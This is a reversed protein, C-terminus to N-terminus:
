EENEKWLGLQTGGEAPPLARLLGGSLEDLVARRVWAKEDTPGYVIEPHHQLIVSAAQIKLSAHLDSEIVRALLELALGITRATRMSNMRNAERIEHNLTIAFAPVKLWRSITTPNVGAAEAAERKSKGAFLADLARMQRATLVQGVLTPAERVEGREEVEASMAGMVGM